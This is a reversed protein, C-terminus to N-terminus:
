QQDGTRDTADDGKGWDRRGLLWQLDFEKLVREHTIGDHPWEADDGSKRGALSDLKRSRFQIADKRTPDRVARAPYFHTPVAAAWL